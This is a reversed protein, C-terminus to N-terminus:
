DIDGKEPVVRVPWAQKESDFAGIVKGICSNLEPRSVIGKILVSCGVTLPATSCPAQDSHSEM